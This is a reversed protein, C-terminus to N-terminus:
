KVDSFSYDPMLFLGKVGRDRCPHSNPGPQLLVERKDLHVLSPQMEKDRVTQMGQQVVTAKYPM